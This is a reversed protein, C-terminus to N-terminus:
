IQNQWKKDVMSIVERKMEQTKVMGAKKTVKSVVKKIVMKNIVVKSAEVKNVMLLM